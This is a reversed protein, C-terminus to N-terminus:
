FGYASTAQSRYRTPRKGLFDGVYQPSRLQLRVANGLLVYLVQEGHQRWEQRRDFEVQRGAVRAICRRYRSGDGSSDCRYHGAVSIEQLM